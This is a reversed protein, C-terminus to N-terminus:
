VPHVGCADSWAGSARESGWAAAVRGGTAAGTPCSHGDVRESRCKQENASRRGGDRGPAGAHRQRRRGRDIWRSYSM